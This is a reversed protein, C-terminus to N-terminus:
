VAIVLIAIASDQNAVRTGRKFIKPCRGCLWRLSSHSDGTHGVALPRASRGSLRTGTIGGFGLGATSPSAKQDRLQTMRTVAVSVGNLGKRLM